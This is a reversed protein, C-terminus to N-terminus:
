LWGIRKGKKRVKASQAFMMAQVGEKWGGRGQEVSVLLRVKGNGLPNKLWKTLPSNRFPL